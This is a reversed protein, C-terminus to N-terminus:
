SYELPHRIDVSAFIINSCQKPTKFMTPSHNQFVNSRDTAHQL